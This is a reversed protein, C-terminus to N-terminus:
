DGEKAGNLREAILELCARDRRRCHEHSRRVMLAVRRSSLGVAFASVILPDKRQPLWWFWALTRDMKDIEQASARTTTTAESYGYAEMISRVLLPWLSRPPPPAEGVPLPLKRLTDMAECLAARVHGREWVVPEGTVPDIPDALPETYPRM